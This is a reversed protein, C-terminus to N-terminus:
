SARGAPEGGNPPAPSFVIVPHGDYMVCNRWATGAAVGQGVKVSVIRGDIRTQCYDGAPSAVHATQATAPARTMSVAVGVGAGVLMAGLVMRLATKRMM